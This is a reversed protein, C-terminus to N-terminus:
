AVEGPPAARFPNVVLLGSLDQGDQLDKTLLTRCGGAKAAAVLLADWWPLGARDQEHWAGELLQAEPVASVGGLLPLPFLLVYQLTNKYYLSSM